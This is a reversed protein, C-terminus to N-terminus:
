GNGGGQTVDGVIAQGGDNVNVHQHKVTIQQKGKNRYKNLAEMQTTYTRMLKNIGDVYYSAWDLTQEGERFRSTMDMTLNHVTTMQTALMLETADQPDIERISAMAANAKIIRADTNDGERLYMQLMQNVLLLTVDKDFSGLYFADEGKTTVVGVKGTKPDKQAKLYYYHKNTRREATIQLVAEESSTTLASDKKGMASKKAAAKEKTQPKGGKM